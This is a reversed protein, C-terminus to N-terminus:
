RVRTCETWRLSRRLGFVYATFVYANMPFSGPVLRYNKRVRNKFIYGLGTAAEFTQTADTPDRNIPFVLGENKLLGIIQTMWPTDLSHTSTDHMNGSLKMGDIDKVNAITVFNEPSAGDGIQVLTSVSSFGNQSM